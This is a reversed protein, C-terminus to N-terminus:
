CTALRAVADSLTLASGLLYVDSRHQVALATASAQPVCSPRSLVIPAGMAAAVTGASLADAFGEGSALFASTALAGGDYFANILRSTDYRNEGGLRTLDGALGRAELDVRIGDSISPELGLLVTRDADLRALADATGQDVSDRSGDVLLVPAGRRGAAPGVSLADPFDNGTALFVEPRDTGRFADAVVLRSTDYRDTGGIRTISPVLAAIEAYVGASVTASSGVVVVREPALRLIEDRVVSPLGDPDTLLLAGGQVSAAPGASLADAWKAGSAVYLVPVGPTFLSRTAAVSTAYRDTGAIRATTAAYPALALDIGTTAAAGVAVPVATTASGSSRWFVDASAPATTSSTSELARLLYRGAPLGPIEFTSTGGGSVNAYGSGMPWASDTGEELLWAEASYPRSGTAAAPASITGSVSGARLLMVDADSTSATLGPSRAPIPTQGLWTSVYGQRYAAGARLFYTAGAPVAFSFDASSASRIQFGAWNYLSVFPQVAFPFPGGTGTGDDVTVTGAITITGTATGTAPDAGRPAFSFNGDVAGVTDGLPVTRGDVPSPPTLAVTDTVSSGPAAAAPAASTSPAAAAAPALAGAILGTALALALLPIRRRRPM